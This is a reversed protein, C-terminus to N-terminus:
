FSLNLGTVEGAIVQPTSNDNGLEIQVVAGPAFLADDSWTVQQKGADWNDLEITFMGAIDLAEEVVIESVSGRAAPPISSGGVRISFAPSTAGKNGAAM